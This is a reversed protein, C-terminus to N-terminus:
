DVLRDLILGFFTKNEHSCFYWGLHNHCQACLATQWSFGQFWSWDYNRDGLELCGEAELFCGIEFVIGSPNLFTHQFGGQIETKFQEATIKHSCYICLLYKETREETQERTVPELSLETQHKLFIENLSRLEVSKAPRITWLPFPKM